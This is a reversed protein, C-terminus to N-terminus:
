SNGESHVEPYQLVGENVSSVKSIFQKNTVWSMYIYNFKVETVPIDVYSMLFAHELKMFKVKNYVKHKKIKNILKKIQNCLSSNNSLDPM